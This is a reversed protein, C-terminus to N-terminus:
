ASESEEQKRKRLAAVGMGVLGPLLAPTPVRYALDDVRVNQGAIVVSTFRENVLPAYFNFYNGSGLVSAFTISSGIPTVGNFFQITGPFAPNLLRVGFYALPETFNFKISPTNSGGTQLARNSGSVTYVNLNGTGSNTITLGSPTGPVTGNYNGTAVADFNFFQTTYGFPDTYVPNTSRTVSIAEAPQTIAVSVLSLAAAASLSCVKFLSLAM